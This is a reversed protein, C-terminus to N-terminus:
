RLLFLWSSLRMPFTSPHFSPISHTPSKSSSMGTGKMESAVGGLLSTRPFRWARSSIQVQSRRAGRQSSTPRSYGGMVPPEVVLSVDYPFAISPMCFVLVFDIPGCDFGARSTMPSASTAALTCGTIRNMWLGALVFLIIPQWTTGANCYCRLDM